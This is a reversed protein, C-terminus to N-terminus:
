LAACLNQFRASGTQARSHLGSLQPNFLHQHRRAAADEVDNASTLYGRWQPVAKRLIPDKILCVHKVVDNAVYRIRHRRHTTFNKPQLPSPKPSILVLELDCCRHPNAPRLHCLHRLEILLGTLLNAFPSVLQSLLAQPSGLSPREKETPYEPWPGLEPPGPPM